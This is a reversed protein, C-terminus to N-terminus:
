VVVMTPGRYKGKYKVLNADIWDKFAMIAGTYAGYQQQTNYSVSQSVGDRGMSVSGIGPRIAAGLMILADMAAKKAILEQLDCTCDRLGVIM